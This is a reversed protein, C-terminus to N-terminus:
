DYFKKMDEAAGKLASETEERVKKMCLAFEDYSEIPGSKQTPTTGTNVERGKNIFFPSHGTASSVKNNYSFKALPLWDAWDDMHYNVFLCLYQEIEQNLHETQGDTQPHHATSVNRSIGLLKYLERTFESAFQGGRDSIVTQALGKHRWVNDRFLRATGESDIEKTCPIAYIRKSFRDVVLMIADYGLSDPLGTIFDVSIVQFLHTPIANPALAGQPRQPFIKTTQCKRCGNVYKNIYETM